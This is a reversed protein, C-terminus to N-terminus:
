NQDPEQSKFGSDGAGLAPANAPKALARELQAMRQEYYAKMRASRQQKLRVMNAHHGKWTKVEHQLHEIYVILADHLIQQMPDTHTSM